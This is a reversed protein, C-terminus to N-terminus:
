APGPSPLLGLAVRGLPASSENPNNANEVLSILAFATSPM